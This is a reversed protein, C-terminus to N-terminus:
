IKRLVVRVELTHVTLDELGGLGHCHGQRHQDGDLHAVSEVAQRLILGEHPHWGPHVDPQHAGDAEGHGEVEEDEVHVRQRHDELELGQVQVM